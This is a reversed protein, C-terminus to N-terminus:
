NQLVSMLCRLLNISVVVCFVSFLCVKVFGEFGPTCKRTSYVWCALRKKSRDENVVRFLADVLGILSKVCYEDGSLTRAAYM